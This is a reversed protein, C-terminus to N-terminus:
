PMAVLVKVSDAQGARAYAEAVRDLPYIGSILGAVDVAQAAILSIGTDLDGPPYLGSGLLGVEYRQMRPLPIVVPGSPVGVAVVTGGASAARGAWDLTAPKCVCDFVATFRPEPPLGGPAAAQGAGRARALERKGRDPEIVTIPGAGRRRLAALLLLGISGAGIVAVEDLQSARGAAHWAAALPEACCALEAPVQPPVRHLEREPVVLRTMAAGPLRYGRVAASECQNVAGQRCRACSGCARLPNLVVRDGPQLRHAGPGTALVHGSVEHGTVVPPRTWPHHGGLVALDSGCIGVHSVAILVEGDGPDERVEAETVAVRGVGTFSIQRVRV